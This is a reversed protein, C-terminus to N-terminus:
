FDFLWLQNPSEVESQPASSDTFLQVLTVKEFLNVSLVQLIEYLTQRLGLRKRVIAVLVYMSIAIWIQTKVANESMGYFAKIRLHQKIWKFFLEVQWRSKYLKAITTAAWLFNNTLFVLKKGTEPDIYRIRRLNEPYDRRSYFKVLKVAQDSTVGSNALVENSRQRKFRSGKRARTVFFVASQHLKYLRKYDVYGRDLLYVSGAELPLHDLLAVDHIRRPTAWAFAPIRSATNILAHIKVAADNRGFKAWPCLALCLEVVTSDFAYVCRQLNRGWTEHDYLPRATAILVQAFDHYIRWDRKENADALTSRSVRGRIGLHYLKTAVSRLCAEIDRLSERYSLQAFGMCLFQDWCSLRRSRYDGRYRRVCEQFERHSTHEMLQSFVTQGINMRLGESPARFLPM